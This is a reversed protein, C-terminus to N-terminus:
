FSSEFFLPRFKVTDDWSVMSSIVACATSMILLFKLYLRTKKKRVYIFHSQFATANQVTECDGVYMRCYPVTSFLIPPMKQIFCIKVALFPFVFIICSLKVVVNCDTLCCKILKNLNRM